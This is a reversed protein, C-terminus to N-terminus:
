RVVFFGLLEGISAFINTYFNGGLGRFLEFPLGPAGFFPRLTWALQSGVFAYLLIWLRLIRGRTRAGRRDTATLMWMGQGLQRIGIWGAVAFIGVNLLKFFQYQSTSVMFFLVVPAFALLVMSTMTVASLLVAFNQSLSLSAEFIMNFFYLAPLCVVLTILFLLPLKVGSSLAQWVSHESGIIAGFLALCVVSWLLMARIKRAVEVGDRIEAFFRFRNRLLTEVESLSRTRRPPTPSTATM